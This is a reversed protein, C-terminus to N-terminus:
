VTAYTNVEKMKGSLINFVEEPSSDGLEDVSFAGLDEKIFLESDLDSLGSIILCFGDRNERCNEVMWKYKSKVYEYEINIFEEKPTIIELFHRKFDEPYIVHTWFKNKRAINEFKRRFEGGKIILVINNM